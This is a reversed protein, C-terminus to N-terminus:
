PRLWRMYIKTRAGGLVANKIDYGVDSWTTWYIIDGVGFYGRYDVRLIVHEGGVGFANPTTRRHDYAFTNSTATRGNLTFKLAAMNNNAAGLGINCQAQIEYVGAIPTVFRAWGSGSGSDTSSKFLSSVNRFSAWGAQAFTEANATLVGTTSSLYVEAEPPSWHEGGKLVTGDGWRVSKDTGGFRIAVLVANDPLEYEATYSVVRFNATVTATSSSTYPVLYYLAEWDGLSIGTSSFSRNAAGGVGTVTGSTPMTIAYFSTAQLAATRGSAIVYFAETWAIGVTSVQKNGGGVMAFQGRMNHRLAKDAAQYGSAVAALDVDAQTNGIVQSIHRDGDTGEILVPQDLYAPRESGYPVWVTSTDGNYQVEARRNGPDVSKVLAYRPQPRESAVESRAISRISDEVDRTVGYEGFESM